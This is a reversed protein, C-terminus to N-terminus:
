WLYINLILIKETWNEKLLLTIIKNDQKKFVFLQKLVFNNTNKLNLKM